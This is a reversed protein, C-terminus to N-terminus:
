YFIDIDCVNEHQVKKKLQLLHYFLSQQKEPYSFLLLFTQSVFEPHKLSLKTRRKPAVFIHSKNRSFSGVATLRQKLVYNVENERYINRLM